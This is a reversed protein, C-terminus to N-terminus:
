ASEVVAQQKLQNRQLQLQHQCAQALQQVQPSVLTNAFGSIRAQTVQESRVDFAVTALARREGARRLSVMLWDGRACADIYNDACHRM